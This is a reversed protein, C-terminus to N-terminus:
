LDDDGGWVVDEDTGLFDKATIWKYDDEEFPINTDYWDRTVLVYYEEDGDYKFIVVFLDGYSTFWYYEEQNRRLYEIGRKIENKVEQDTVKKVDRERQKTRLFHTPFDINDKTLTIGPLEDVM